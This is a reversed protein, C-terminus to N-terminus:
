CKAYSCYVIVSLFNVNIFDVLKISTKGTEYANKIHKHIYKTSYLKICTYKVHAGSDLDLVTGEGPDRM